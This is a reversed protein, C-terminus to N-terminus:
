KIRAGGSIWLATRKNFLSKIFAIRQQRDLQGIVHETILFAITAVVGVFGIWFM